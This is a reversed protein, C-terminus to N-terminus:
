GKGILHFRHLSDMAVELLGAPTLAEPGSPPSLPSWADGSISDWTLFIGAIRRGYYGAVSFLASAEMDVTLCGEERLRRVKSRTERYVGDTTWTTGERFPIKKLDLTNRIAGTLSPDPFAHRAPADYHFSTGEDRVARVPLFVDGRHFGAALTGASGIFICTEAGLAFTEDLVASAIPSGIGPHIFAMPLGLHRFALYPHGRHVPDFSMASFKRRCHQALAPYFGLICYKPFQFEPTGTKRNRAQIFDKATFVPPESPDGNLLELTKMMDKPGHKILTYFVFMECLIL